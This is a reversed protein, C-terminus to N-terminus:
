AGMLRVVATPDDKLQDVLANFKGIDGALNAIGQLKLLYPVLVETVRDEYRSLSEKSFDNERLAKVATEAALVGSRAAAAIGELVFPEVFSGADGVLMVGADHIKDLQGASPVRWGMWRSVDEAKALRKGHPSNEIFYRVMAEGDLSADRYRSMQVGMGVNVANDYAPHPSLCIFGPVFEETYHIELDLLEPDAGRVYKRGCLYVMEPNDGFAGIRKAVWSHSGDCGIVIKSRLETFEGQYKAKVGRVQEDEIILDNIWCEEWVEAGLAAANEKLINDGVRRPCVVGGRNQARIASFNPAVLVTDRYLFGAELIKEYVGIETLLDKIAPGYLDSCPKDRPFKEKDALLVRVGAMALKSATISGGPGAGVVIVDWEKKM